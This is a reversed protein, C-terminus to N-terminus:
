DSEIEILSVSPSESSATNLCTRVLVDRLHRDFTVGLHVVHIVLTAAEGDDEIVFIKVWTQSELSSVPSIGISVIESQGKPLKVKFNLDEIVQWESFQYIRLFKFNM